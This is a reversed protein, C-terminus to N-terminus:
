CRGKLVTIKGWTGKKTNHKRKVAKPMTETTWLPMHKYMVLDQKM